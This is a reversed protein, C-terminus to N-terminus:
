ADKRGPEDQRTEQEQKEEPKDEQAALAAKEEPTLLVNKAHELQALLDPTLPELNNWDRSYPEFPDPVNFHPDGFLKKLAIRRLEEKVKPHMFPAFDSQSTLKEVPPLPPAAESKQPPSAPAKEAQQKLRSWRSLFADKEEAM